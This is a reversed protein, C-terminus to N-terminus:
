IEFKSKDPLIRDFSNILNRKAEIFDHETMNYISDHICVIKGEQRKIYDCSRRGAKLARGFKISRPYFNGSAVQWNKFLWQNFDMVNRFRNLCTQHLKEGEKKWLEIITSKCLSSPLHHNWLGTFKKGGLLLLALSLYLKKGYKLNFWKGISNKVVKRLKFYKNLISISRFEFFMFWDTEELIPTYLIASDCPKGKVFFDSPRTKNILFMDDNFYIFHESLEKIRHFNLEIPNASFTPLYEPPIYDRHNIIKLNSVNTNLWKPLYGWTIFFINNIWPAFKEIGRFIYHLNEWDRYREPRADTDIGPSYKQKEALWVPDSGDVWTIVIDIPYDAM